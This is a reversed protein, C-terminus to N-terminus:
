DRTMISSLGESFATSEGLLDSGPGVADRGFRGRLDDVAADLAQLEMERSSGGVLDDEFLPLQLQLPSAPVLNSMSIGLLSLGRDPYEELIGETLDLSTRYLM